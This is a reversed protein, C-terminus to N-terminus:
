ALKPYVRTIVLIMSLANFFPYKTSVCSTQNPIVKSRYSPFKSLFMPIKDQEIRNVMCGLIARSEDPNEM